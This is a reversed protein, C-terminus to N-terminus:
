RGFLSMEVGAVFKPADPFNYSSKFLPSPRYSCKVALWNYGFRAFYNYQFRSIFDNRTFRTKVFTGNALEGKTTYNNAFIYDGAVGLDLFTGITNGRKPDFNIRLFGGLSATHLGLKELHHTTDTGKGWFTTDLFTNAEKKNFNIGTYKYAPELGLAFMGSLKRKYRMGSMFQLSRGYGIDMGEEAKGLLMGLGIFTHTYNPENKGRSPTTDNQKTRDEALLERQAWVNSSCFILLTVFLM